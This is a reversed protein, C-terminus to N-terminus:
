SYDCATGIDCPPFFSLVCPVCRQLYVLCVGKGAGLEVYCTSDNVLGVQEALQMLRSAQRLHRRSSDTRSAESISDEVVAHHSTPPQWSWITDHVHELVTQQEIKHDAGHDSKLCVPDLYHDYNGNLIYCM